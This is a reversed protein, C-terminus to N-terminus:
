WRTERELAQHLQRLYKAGSVEVAGLSELHPTLFQVELLGFNKERLREVLSYLAVKSADRARHFKSEAFFAGKVSIGYLGGVLSQDKWVEVSHAFGLQHLKFFSDFFPATIWTEDRDACGQMVDLFVTDFSVRYTGRRVTRRLSRSAHFKDLPIIARPDPKYWHIEGTSPEGMPFYGQIYASILLDPDLM